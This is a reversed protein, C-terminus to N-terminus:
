SARLNTEDGNDLWLGKASMDIGGGLVGVSPMCAKGKLVMDVKPENSGDGSDPWRDTREAAHFFRVM